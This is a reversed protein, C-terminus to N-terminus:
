DFKADFLRDLEDFDGAEDWLELFAILEQLTPSRKARVYFGSVAVGGLLAHEEDAGSLLALLLGGNFNDGAGTTLRPRKCYPGEVEFCGGDSALAASHTPHVVVRSLCLDERIAVALECPSEKESPRRLLSYIQEAESLNMGLTVPAFAQLDELLELAKKLDERKRKAPDTLDVFIQPIDGKDMLPFVEQMLGRWIGDMGPLMSWNTMALLDTKKLLKALSNASIKEKVSNWDMGLVANHKGMMLKGDHFELADTLGPESVPFVNELKSAFDQFVEHVLSLGIAGAYSVRIGAMQLANALIPGNGGLKKGLSALEINASKGAARAIREAYEPITEIRSYEEFNIRERVVHFIEDVFGDFGVLVSPSSKKIESLAQILSRKKQSKTM